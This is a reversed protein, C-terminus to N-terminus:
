SSFEQRCWFCCENKDIYLYPRFKFRSDANLRHFILSMQDFGGNISIVRFIIMENANYFSFKSFSSRQIEIKTSIETLQGHHLFIPEIWDIWKSLFLYFADWCAIKLFQIEIQKWKESFIEISYKEM